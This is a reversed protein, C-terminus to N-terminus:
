WRHHPYPRYDYHHYYDDHHWRDRYVTRERTVCGVSSLGMIGLVLLILTTKILKM